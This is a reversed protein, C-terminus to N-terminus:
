NSENKDKLAQKFMDLVVKPTRVYGYIGKFKISRYMTRNDDYLYDFESNDSYWQILLTNESEKKNERYIINLSGSPVVKNNNAELEIGEKFIM